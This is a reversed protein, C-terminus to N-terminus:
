TSSRFSASAVIFFYQWAFKLFKISILSYRASLNKFYIYLLTLYNLAAKYKVEGFWEPPTFNEAEELSNFEIEGYFFETPM